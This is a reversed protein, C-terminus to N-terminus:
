RLYGLLKTCTEASMGSQSIDREVASTDYAVDVVEVVLRDTQSTLVAFTSMKRADRPQGVSGPNVLYSAPGALEYRPRTDEVRLQDHNELVVVKQRHTHGFVGVRQGRQALGKAAASFEDPKNLYTWDGYTLPNAHAFFVDGLVMAERWPFRSLLAAGDIRALTWDVTEKLWPPLKDYYGTEGAALDFYLQDHNGKLLVAGDRAIAEATLALVQDPDVGYTLLDGLILLQDFGRQRALKLARAYARGNGHIDSIVAVRQLGDMGPAESMTSNLEAAM